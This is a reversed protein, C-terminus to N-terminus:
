ASSIFCNLLRPLEDRQDRRSHSIYEASSLFCDQSVMGKVNNAIYITSCHQSNRAQVGSAKHLVGLQSLPTIRPIWGKLHGLQERRGRGGHQRHLWKFGLIPHSPPPPCTWSNVWNLHTLAEGARQCRRTSTVPYDMCFVPPHPSPLIYGAGGGGPFSNSM